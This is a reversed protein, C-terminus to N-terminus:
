PRGNGAAGPSFHWLWANSDVVEDVFALKEGDPSPVAWTSLPTERLVRSQGEGDVYLLLDGVGTNAAVYWGKGDASWSIGSLAGVGRVELERQRGSNASLPVIRIAPHDSVHSTLAVASGDPSVCWDELVHPLWSTRALERGRGSVPDLAYYVLYKEGEAKRLVCGSHGASPCQFEDLPGGIPVEAPGVGNVPVRFLKDHSSPVVNPNVAYLIWQDDPTVQPLVSHETGTGFEQPTREGMRQKYLRFTGSRNSEFIVTQNDHLWTHPYDTRTDYTLRQIDGLAPGPQHLAGVYIHPQGKNLVFSVTRSDDSSALGSAKAGELSVVLRPASLFQGNQTDTDVEWLSYGDGLGAPSDRLLVIRGDKLACASDFLVDQHSALLKGSTADVSEYVGGGYFNARRLYSVRQGDASWFAGAFVKGTRETILPRSGEGDVGVIWLEVGKYRTFLVRAGDPSPVGNDADARFLQPADGNIFIKWVQPNADRLSFGSILLKLQDPFWAIREARFGEEMKLGLTQGGSIVRLYVGSLDAYAIWKGDPSIAAATVRQESDNTTVQVLVGAAQRGHHRRIALMVAFVALLAAAAVVGWAVARRKRISPAAGLQVQHSNQVLSQVPAQVPPPATDKALSLDVDPIVPGNAPTAAREASSEDPGAEKTEAIFRYGKGIVTEVFRPKAPDDALVERIRRIATNIGQDVDVLDPQSWLRAAIEERSVLVGRREVLLVLLDMPSRSLRLRRNARRLDYRILNLEYTGFKYVAGSSARSERKSSNASELTDRLPTAARTISRGGLM